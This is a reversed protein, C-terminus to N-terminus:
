RGERLRRAQEILDMLCCHSDLFGDSPPQCEKYPNGDNDDYSWILLEAVQQVFAEVEARQAATSPKEKKQPAPQGGLPNEEGTAIGFFELLESIRRRERRVDM